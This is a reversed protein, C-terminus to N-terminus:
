VLIDTMSVAPPLFYGFRSVGGEAASELALLAILDGIDTHFVQADTTYAANNLKGKESAHSVSLDKIHALVAGTGDQKGRSSGVHSSIGPCTSIAIM